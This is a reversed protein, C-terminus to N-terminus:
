RHLMLYRIVQTTSLTGIVGMHVQCGLRFARVTM